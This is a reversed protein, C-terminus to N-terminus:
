ASTGIVSGHIPCAANVALSISAEKVVGDRLSKYHYGNERCLCKPMASNPSTFQRNLDDAAPEPYLRNMTEAAVQYDDANWVTRGNKRCRKDAADTAAAYAISYDDWM